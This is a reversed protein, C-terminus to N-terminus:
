IEPIELPEGTIGKFQTAVGSNEPTLVVKYLMISLLTPFFLRGRLRIQRTM